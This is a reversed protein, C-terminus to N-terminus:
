WGITYYTAIRRVLMRFREEDYLGIDEYPGTDFSRAILPAGREKDFERKVDALLTEWFERAETLATISGIPPQLFPMGKENVGIAIWGGILSEIGENEALDEMSKLYNVLNGFYYDPVMPSWPAIRGDPPQVLTVTFLASATPSWMTILCDGISPGFYFLELKQNGVEVTYRESFTIDPKVISPYSIEEMEKLCNEQAIIKAGEDKFIRAGAARELHTSSYVVYKVPQDTIKAIEARMGKAAKVNMPDTVIVGDESVIILSRAAGWRYTYIGNGITELETPARFFSSSPEYPYNEEEMTATDHACAPVSLCAVCLLILSNLFNKNKHSTSM